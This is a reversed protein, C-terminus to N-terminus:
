EVYIAPRWPQANRAKHAPDPVGPEEAVHVEVPAGIEKSLFSLADGLYAAEDITTGFRALADGSLRRAAEVAQKCYEAVEGRDLGPGLTELSERILSGIEFKGGRAALVARRYVEAKWAPAVYLVVRRPRLGTVKLIQKVDELTRRVLDESAEATRDLAAEDASPWPAGQIYGEGGISQWIEEALHPTFPNLMKTQYEVFEQHLDAQPTRGCRKLYWAWDRQLDFYGHKLATRHSLTEMASTTENIARHLVAKMWTDVPRRRKRQRHRSTAHRFWQRLKPGLADAFAPDFNPDAIGEGGQALTLRVVDAGWKATAERLLIFNGKSKSMKQGALEMFGNVGFARPWHGPPFIATHHFICFTMHNQVLDKGTNRLDFPYWYLFEERMLKVTKVPLGTEAAAGAVDGRGLFVHDFFRTGLRAADVGGGQLVHAITYYAMYITSDSLSEIVWREDWPLRTGLGQHHACPWDRLWDVTYHLQKRIVEPYLTMTDIARHAEGKWRPDAYTLFWQDEVVKVIAKTLCRCIVVGSPEWMSAAEGERLLKEKIREKAEAVPMGAFEGCAGGMVGHYYGAAYVEEKAKELKEWDTQDRIGLREVVEVAPLPGWGEIRIIPIPKIAALSTPDLGYSRVEEPDAKLEQLAVYDDPADSPVSTVIGTGRGQDIFKSPLVPIARHIAPAVVEQGVLDRGMVTGRVTVAHGQEALKDAAERNVIWEEGDVAARVYEVSPDVWLNTQGYVTEPRLTAAMLYAARWPFKLLTFETPTEGEGKYRDHDGIPAQDHPCWIVPHKGLSVFGGERLKTFQWKVFADYHPNIHTTVFSRRWDLAAGFRTLDERTAPGFVEVWHLPDAFKPIEQDSFGMDRLIQRQGEEGEAIRRAAGVIPLGTVHFAQSFLVRHGTMRKYRAMIDVHLFSIGQGLHLYGNIYPYPFTGFWKPKGPNPEAEFVADDAWRHQWHAEVTKWDYGRSPM